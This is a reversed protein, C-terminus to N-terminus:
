KAIGIYYRVNESKQMGVLWFYVELTCLMVMLFNHALLFVRIKYLLVQAEM